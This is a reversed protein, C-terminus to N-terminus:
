RGAPILGLVHEKIPVPLPAVQERAFDYAGNEVALLAKALRLGPTEGSGMRRLRDPLALDRVNVKAEVVSAGILRSVQIDGTTWNVHSVKGQVSGTRTRIEMTQGIQSAFSQLVAREAEVAGNLVTRLEAVSDLAVVDPAEVALEDGRTKAAAVGRAALAQTLTSIAQREREQRTREAAARREEEERKAREAAAAREADHRAARLEEARLMRKQRTEAAYVGAYDAYESIAGAYDGVAFKAESRVRLTELVEGCKESVRARVRAIAARALGAEPSDPAADVVMQYRAVIEPCRNPNREEWDEAQAQLAAAASVVPAHAEAAARGHGAASQAHSLRWGGWGLLAAVVVVGM